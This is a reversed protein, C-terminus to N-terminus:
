NPRAAILRRRIEDAQAADLGLVDPKHVAQWRELSRPDGPTVVITPLYADAKHLEEDLM